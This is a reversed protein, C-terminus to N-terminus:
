DPDSCTKRKLKFSKDYHKANQLLKQWLIHTWSHNSARTIVVPSTVIKFRIIIIKQVIMKWKNLERGILTITFYFTPNNSILCFWFNWGFFKGFFINLSVTESNSVFERWQRLLGVSSKLFSAVIKMQSLFFKRKQEVGSWGIESKWKPNQFNYLFLLMTM